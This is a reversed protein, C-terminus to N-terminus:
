RRSCGDPGREDVQFGVGGLARVIIKGGVLVAEVGNQSRRGVTWDPCDVQEGRGAAPKDIGEGAAAV